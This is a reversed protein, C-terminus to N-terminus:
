TLQKGDVTLGPSANPASYNPANHNYTRGRVHHGSLIYDNTLILHKANYETYLLISNSAIIPHLAIDPASRSCRADHCCCASDVFRTVALAGVRVSGSAFTVHTDRNAPKLV